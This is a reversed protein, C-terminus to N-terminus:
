RNINAAKVRKALTIMLAKSWSPRQYLVADFTGVPVEILECNSDAIVSASRREGNIYGMEGVFEGVEIHGLKIEGEASKKVARLRGKKVFYVFEVKDGENLLVDEAALFRVYFDSPQQHASFNLARMLAKDFEAEDREKTLYQVKGTVLQDIFREEDPLVGSIIIATAETGRHSTAHEVLKLPIAKPLDVDTILVHPPVNSLKNSADIADNAVFITPDKVHKRISEEFWKLRDPAASAILFVKKTELAVKM